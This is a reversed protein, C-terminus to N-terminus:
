PIINLIRGAVYIVKKPAGEIYKAIEPNTLAATLAEEQTTDPAITIDGRRKGAVQVGITVVDDKALSADFTPFSQEHIFDTKDLEHWLEETLHPAFPAMLKLFTEYSEQALGEKEAANVFIMLASIATNFKLELIDTSVKAITKHLLRTMDKSEEEKVHERIGNVRELFRRIGAIGGLDFPYNAAEGYNGMFALYMKVTDAGVREVHEDPNVVNGKSKSMKQGDPGLILGRNIRKTYPENETALGMDFLVKQWFRSYLLHLTTHESGGMYLDVPMWDKQAALSSPAGGNQADFYRLFYWSSDVFTDMTEVEPTWGEGFINTVRDRLEQSKALPAEGTPRFDVDTPLTWPLHELPVPHAEGEPSYVIPVPVGWYRQRGISWDRLRYTSTEKGGTAQTIAAKADESSLGTHEGSNILTGAGSHVKGDVLMEWVTRHLEDIVEREITKADKWVAEFKGEEAGDLQTATEEDDALEFLLGVADIERAVNKAHAFYHHHIPMTQAKYVVNTCQTEEQIERIAAAIVDEGEEIGGGIFLTQQQEKWNITMYTDTRPNYVIAVISKRHEPNEQPVGTIPSIVPTIALAYKKAFANDREDHAPVGMVAGTGYNGLVYDAVFVSVSEGTLPHIASVGELKVGTKEKTANLRDVEDKQTAEDVYKQVEETNEVPLTKLLPHEPALVLFSVGYLTDPRTTFITVKDGNSLTFPIEAGKSRGIWNRQLEKIYSPWQVTDLDDILRDAYKTIALKWSAMTRKEVKTGCRECTDDSLVQENALITHDHPCWNVIGEGRYAIGKKFFEGFMWQTWKFYEPDTTSVTMDTSFANGMQDLQARMTDMNKYTWEKPNLGRKIAANEAPMGFADFGLPYLVQKGQMREHRVLIDPVGFAYWHGIHLDGSPYPLEVLLYRKEKQLDRNGVAYLNADKWSKQWKKEIALHDFKKHMRVASYVVLLRTICM